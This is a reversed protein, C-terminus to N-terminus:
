QVEKVRKMVEELQQELVKAQQMHYAHNLKLMRAFMDLTKIHPPMERQSNDSM